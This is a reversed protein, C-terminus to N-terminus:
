AELRSVHASKEEEVKEISFQFFLFSDHKLVFFLDFICDQWILAYKFKKRFDLISKESAIL